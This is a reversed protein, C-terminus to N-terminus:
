ALYLETIVRGITVLNPTHKSVSYRHMNRLDHTHYLGWCNSGLVKECKKWIDCPHGIPLRFFARFVAPYCNSAVTCLVHCTCTHGRETGQLRSSPNRQFKTHPLLGMLYANFWRGAPLPPPHNQGGGERTKEIAWFRRWIDVHFKWSRRQCWNSM